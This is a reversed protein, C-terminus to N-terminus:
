HIIGKAHQTKSHNFTLSPSHTSLIKKFLPLCYLPPPDKYFMPTLFGTGILYM